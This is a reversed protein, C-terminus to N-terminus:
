KGQACMIEASAVLQEDVFATAKFKWAIGKRNLLNVKLILQDGPVVPKKFRAKDIGAFYYLEGDKLIDSSISHALIGTAQAFAEMILVGPFIPVEPFHGTFIPENVSINKLATLSEGDIDTVRDIMLFPFRHPLVKLIQRIDKTTM